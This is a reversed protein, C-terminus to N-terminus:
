TEASQSDAARGPVDITDASGNLTSLSTSAAGTTTGTVTSKHFVDKVYRLWQGPNLEEGIRFHPGRFAQSVFEQRFDTLAQVFAAGALLMAAASGPPRQVM